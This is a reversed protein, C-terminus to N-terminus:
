SEIYIRVSLLWDFHTSHSINSIRIQWLRWAYHRLELNQPISSTIWTTKMTNKRGRAIPLWCVSMSQNLSREVGLNSCETETRYNSFYAWRTIRFCKIYVYFCANHVNQGNVIRMCHRPEVPVMSTKLLGNREVCTLDPTLNTTQLLTRHVLLWVTNVSVCKGGLWTKVVTQLQLGCMTICLSHETYYLRHSTCSYQTILSSPLLTPKFGNRESIGIKIAREDGFSTECPQFQGLKEACFQCVACFLGLYYQGYCYGKM